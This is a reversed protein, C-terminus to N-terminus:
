ERDDGDEGLEARAMAALRAELEMYYEDDRGQYTEEIVIERMWGFLEKSFGRQYKMEGLRREAEDIGGLTDALTRQRQRFLRLEERAATDDPSTM